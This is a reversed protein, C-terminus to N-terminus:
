KLVDVRAIEASSLHSLLPLIRVSREHVQHEEAEAFPDLGAKDTLSQSAHSRLRECTHQFHGLVRFWRYAAPGDGRQLGKSLLTSRLRSDLVCELAKQGVRIRVDLSKSLPDVAAEKCLDSAGLRNALAAVYAGRVGKRGSKSVSRSM